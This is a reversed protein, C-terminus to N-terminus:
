ITVPEKNLMKEGLKWEWEGFVAVLAAKLPKHKNEIRFLRLQRLKWVMFSYLFINEFSKAGLM